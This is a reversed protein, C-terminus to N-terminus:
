KTQSAIGKVAVYLSVAVGFLSLFITFWPNSTDYKEDLYDGFWACGGIVVAM